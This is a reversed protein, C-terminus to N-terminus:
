EQHAQRAKDHCAKVDGSQQICSRLQELDTESKASSGSSNLTKDVEPSASLHQVSQTAKRGQELVDEAQARVV